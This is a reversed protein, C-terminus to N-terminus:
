KDGFDSKGTEPDIILYKEIGNKNIGLYYVVKKALVVGGTSLNLVNRKFFRLGYDGLKGGSIAKLRHVEEDFIFEGSTLDLFYKSDGRLLYFERVAGLTEWSLDFKQESERVVKGDKLVAKWKYAKETM